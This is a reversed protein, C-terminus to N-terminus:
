KPLKKNILAKMFEKTTMAKIRNLSNRQKIRNFHNRFTDDIESNNKCHKLTYSNLTKYAMEKTILGMGVMTWCWVGWGIGGHYM